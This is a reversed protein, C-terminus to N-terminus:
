LSQDSYLRELYLFGRTKDKMDKIWDYDENVGVVGGTYYIYDMVVQTKLNLKFEKYKRSYPLDSGTVYQARQSDSLEEWSQCAELLPRRSDPHNREFEKYFVVFPPHGLPAKEVTVFLKRKQEQEEYYARRENSLRNYEASVRIWSRNSIGKQNKIDSFFIQYANRRNNGAFAEKILVDYCDKEFAFLKKTNRLKDKIVEWPYLGSLPYPNWRHEESYRKLHEVIEYGKWIRIREDYLFQRNPSNNLRQIDKESFKDWLAKLHHRTKYKTEAALLDIGTVDKPREHYESLPKKLHNLEDDEPLHDGNAEIGSDIGNGFMIEHVKKRKLLLSESTNPYGIDFPQKSWNTSLYTKNRCPIYPVKLSGTRVWTPVVSM